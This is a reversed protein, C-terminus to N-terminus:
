ACAISFSVREMLTNLSKFRVIGSVPINKSTSNPEGFGELALSTKM